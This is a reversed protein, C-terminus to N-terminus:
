DEMIIGAYGWSNIVIIYKRGSKMFGIPYVYGGKLLKIDEIGKGISLLKIEGTYLSSIIYKGNAYIYDRPTILQPHFFVKLPYSVYSRVSAPLYLLYADSEKLYRIGVDTSFIKQGTSFNKFVMGDKSIYFGVIEGNGNEWVQGFKGGDKLVIEDVLDGTESNLIAIKSDGAQALYIKDGGFAIYFPSYVEKHWIPSYDDASLKYFIGEGWDSLYIYGDHYRAYSIFFFDGISKIKEGRDSLYNWMGKKRREVFCHFFSEWAWLDWFANGLLGRLPPDLYRTYDIKERWSVFKKWWEAIDEGKGNIILSLQYLRNIWHWFDFNRIADQRQEKNLAMDMYKRLEALSIDIVKFIDKIDLSPVPLAEYLREKFEARESLPIRWYIEWPFYWGRDVALFIKFLKLLYPIVADNWRIKLSDMFSVVNPYIRRLKLDLPLRQSHLKLANQFTAKKYFEEVLRQLSAGTEHEENELENVLNKFDDVRDDLNKRLIILKYSPIPNEPLEEWEGHPETLSKGDWLLLSEGSLVAKYRSSLSLKKLKEESPTILASEFLLYPKGGHIVWSIPSSPLLWLSVPEGDLMLEVLLREGDALLFVRDESTKVSCPVDYLHPLSELRGVPYREKEFNLIRKKEKDVAILEGEYSAIWYPYSVEFLFSEKLWKDEDFSYKYLDLTGVDLLHPVGKYVCLSLPNRFGNYKFVVAGSSDLKYVKGEVLSSVFLLEQEKLYLADYILM